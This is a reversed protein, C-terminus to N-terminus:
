KNTYEGARSGIIGALLLGVAAYSTPGDKVETARSIAETSNAFSTTTIGGFSDNYAATSAMSISTTSSEQTFYLPDFPSGPAFVSIVCLVLCFIQATLAYLGTRQLGVNRRLIPYIITGVIGMGAAAGRLGGILDESLGQSYVFGLVFITM